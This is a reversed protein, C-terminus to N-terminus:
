ITRANIKKKWQAESKQIELKSNKTKDQGQCSILSFLLLLIFLKNRM